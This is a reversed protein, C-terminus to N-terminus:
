SENKNIEGMSSSCIISQDTSTSTKRRGERLSNQKSAQTFVEYYTQKLLMSTDTRSLEWWNKSSGRRAIWMLSDEYRIKEKNWCLRRIFHSLQKEKLGLGGSFRSRYNARLTLEDGRRWVRIRWQNPCIDRCIDTSIPKLVM